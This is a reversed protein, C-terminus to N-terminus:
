LPHGQKDNIPPSARQDQSLENGWHLPIDPCQTPLPANEYFCPHPILSPANAFLSLHYCKVHLHM